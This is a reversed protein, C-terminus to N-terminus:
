HALVEDFEDKVNSAGTKAEDARHRNSVMEVSQKKERLESALFPSTVYSVDECDTVSSEVRSGSPTNLVYLGDEFLVEYLEATVSDFLVKNVFKKLEWPAQQLFQMGVSSVQYATVPQYDETSLKLANLYEAERLDDIASKGEQSINMWIRKPKYRQPVIVPSPAYDFDLVGQVVAEYILVLLPFHRIWTDSDADSEAVTAHASVMYLVKAHEITWERGQFCLWAGGFIQNGKMREDQPDQDAFFDMATATKNSEELPSIRM